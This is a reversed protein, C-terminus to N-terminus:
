LNKKNITNIRNYFVMGIFPSIFIVLYAMTIWPQSDIYFEKLTLVYPHPIIIWSILDFVIILLSWSLGLFLATKWQKKEPKAMRYYLFAFLPWIILCYLPHFPLSKIYAPFYSDLSGMFIICITHVTVISFGVIYSVWFWLMSIKWNIKNM